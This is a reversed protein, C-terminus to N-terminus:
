HRGPDGLWERVSRAWQEMYERTEAENCTRALVYTKGEYTVSRPHNWPRCPPRNSRDIVILGTVDRPGSVTSESLLPPPAEAHLAAAMTM